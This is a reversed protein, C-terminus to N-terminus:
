LSWSSILFIFLALIVFFTLQRFLYFISFHGQFHALIADRGLTLFLALFAAANIFGIPLFSALWGIQGGALALLGSALIRRKPWPVGNFEFFEGLLLFLALIIGPVARFSVIPQFYFFISFIVLFFASHFLNFILFQDGFIFDALGLVIFFLILFIVFFALALLPTWVVALGIKALFFTIAILLWFSVRLSRRRFHGSLYIVAFFVWFATAALWHFETLWLIALVLGAAAIEFVLPWPIRSKLFFTLRKAM